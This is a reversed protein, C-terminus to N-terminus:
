WILSGKQSSAAHSSKITAILPASSVYNSEEFADIPDVTMHLPSPLRSGCDETAISPGPRHIITPSFEEIRQSWRFLKPTLEKSKRLWSIARSDTILTVPAGLLYHRFKDLGSLAGLCEREHTAYRSQTPTFTGSAFAIFKTLNRSLPPGGKRLLLVLSQLLHPPTLTTFSSLKPSLPNSLNSLKRKLM